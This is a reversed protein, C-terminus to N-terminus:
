RRVYVSVSREAVDQHYDVLACTVPAAHVLAVRDNKAMLSRLLDREEHTHNVIVLVGGQDHAGDGRPEALLEVAHALLAEPRYESVPLGWRLLAFRTVFPYFITVLAAQQEPTFALFDQVRYRVTPGALAAWATAHDARSRLDKYVVHGDLEVGTLQPAAEVCHEAFAFLAPAYVFDKSGVDVVTAARVGKMHPAAHTDLLDLVYLNERMAARTSHAHVRSLDYTAALDKARAEAKERAPGELYDFLADKEENTLRPAGRSFSLARRLAFRVRNFPAFAVTLASIDMVRDGLWARLVLILVLAGLLVYLTM